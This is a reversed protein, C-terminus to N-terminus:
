NNSLKNEIKEEINKLTNITSLLSGYKKESSTINENLFYTLRYVLSTCYKMLKNKLIEDNSNKLQKSITTIVNITHEILSYIFKKIVQIDTENRIISFDFNKFLKNLIILIDIDNMFPSIINLKICNDNNPKCITIEILKKISADLIKHKMSNQLIYYIIDDLVYQGILIDNHDRFVFKNDDIKVKMIGIPYQLLYEKSTNPNKHTTHVINDQEHKIIKEDQQSLDGYDNFSPNLM